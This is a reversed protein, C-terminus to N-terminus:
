PKASCPIEQQDDYLIANAARGRVRETIEIQVLTPDGNVAWMVGDSMDIRVENHKSGATFGGIARTFTVGRYVHISGNHEASSWTFPLM